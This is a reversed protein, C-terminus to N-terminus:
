TPVEMYYQVVQKPMSTAQLQANETNFGIRDYETMLKSGFGEVQETMTASIFHVRMNSHYEDSTFTAPSKKKILDLCASMEQEFGMDLMRDAEDFILSQLNDLKLAQTNKLHYLLRGPTAIIVTCGKRLRAKERSASEGGMLTTPVVYYFLKLLKRLEIDIQVALERTPSFIIAMTGTDRHIKEVNLSHYSLKELLPVLYTLTKGSGTESRLVVNKGSLLAPIGLRQIATLQTFGSLKLIEKLKDNIPLDDFKELKSLDLTESPKTFVEAEEAKVEVDDPM